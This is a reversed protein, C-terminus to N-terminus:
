DIAQDITKAMEQKQFYEHLYAAADSIGALFFLVVMAFLGALFSEQWFGFSLTGIFVLITLFGGKAVM